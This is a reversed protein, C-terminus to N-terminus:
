TSSDLRMSDRQDIYLEADYTTAAELQERTFPTYVYLNGNADTRVILDEFAIAVPKTGIGLFGGIDLVVADITGDDALLVDAVSGVNEDQGSYVATDILDDASIAAVDIDTLDQPLTATQQDTMPDTAQEGSPADPTMAMEDTSTDTQEAPQDGPLMATQQQDDAMTEGSQGDPTAAMQDEAPTPTAEPVTATQQQDAPADIMPDGVQADPAMATDSTGAGFLRDEPETQLVSVDFAPAAELQEPTAALVLRADIQDGDQFAAWTLQEFDVAVNKEGVGLFGGVGIVVGEIEGNEAIVIDTIDGVTEADPAQSTYVTEGILESALHSTMSPSTVLALDQAPAIEQGTEAQTETTGTEAAVAAGAIAVLATAALLQKRM